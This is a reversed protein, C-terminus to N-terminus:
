VVGRRRRVRRSGGHGVRVPCSAAAVGSVGLRGLLWREIESRLALSLPGGVADHGGLFLRLEGGVVAVDRIWWHVGCRLCGGEVPEGEVAGWEHVCSMVAGKSMSRM